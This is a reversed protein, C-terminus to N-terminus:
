VSLDNIFLDYLINCLNQVAPEIKWNAKNRPEVPNSVSRLQICSQVASRCAFYFAAGETSEVDPDWRERIARIGEATGSVTQVTCAKVRQLNELSPLPLDASCPIWGSRSVASDPLLGMEHAPIFGTPSDAGFDGPIDEKVLVVTGTQLEERYAGCIGAQIALDYRQTSLETGMRYATAIMGPGTILVKLQINNFLTISQATQNAPLTIGIRELFPAIEMSTAATLLIKKLDKSGALM